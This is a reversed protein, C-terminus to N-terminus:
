YNIENKLEEMVIQYARSNIKKLIKLFDNIAAGIKKADSELDDEKLIREEIDLLYHLTQSANKKIRNMVKEFRRRDGSM